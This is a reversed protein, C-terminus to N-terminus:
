GCDMKEEILNRRLVKNFDIRSMEPVAREDGQIRRNDSWINPVHAVKLWEKGKKRELEKELMPCKRIRLFRLSTLFGEEPMYKLKPCDNILLQVLSPLNQFGEKELSKLNKFSNIQLSTLTTPLLLKGPFSEVDESERGSIQLWFLTPLIQLGWVMWNAILRKCSRIDIKVLASPLGGEPFLEIKPCDKIEMISLSPLFQDMKDPMSRLSECNELSFTELKPARLGGKPFSVFSPCERIKIYSIVSYGEHQELSQLNRCGKILINDLNPFLGLPFSMLSDCCDMLCLLRLSSYPSHMPFELKMCDNIRLSKLKSLLGDRPLSALSFCKGIQLRQLCSNFGKIADHEHQELSVLSELNDNGNIRIRTLVPFSDILLSGELHQCDIVDLEALSPLHVPLRGRLKPCNKIYLKELPYFTEIENKTSLHFWSEWNSMNELALIKLRGFPKMLSSNGYFETDVTVVGDFGDIYLENLFHLQGLPPLSGCYNCNRLEMHSINSLSHLKAIWDPFGKGCYYNITLSKLNEHPQLNELVGRQSECIGFKNTPNWQLVLEELYDKDKLGADLADEASRVNQLEWISLKGRLNILKGLEGICSGNHKSIIFKTLTQLYKLKGMQTPMKKLAQTNDIELHRLNKLKRMDRPLRDLCRCNSLKLTQLNCLNCVSNPLCKIKTSSFDLYRLHKMKSISDSLKIIKMGDLSLVRLCWARPMKIETGWSSGLKLFTRLHKAKYLDEEIKDFNDLSGGFYSLYRTMKMIEKSSDGELTFGFQGSVYKALDNVLDHMVFGLNNESSQQFLSRSVLTDFYRNGVEEMKETKSEHLFGEAMWLLVLEDKKFIHDKPFISCYAFCRKLYSPLYKYSLRLAPLITTEELSLDWLDSKLIKTWKEVDLESWLLDGIAKIALPLGKCKKVIQTGIEKIKPDANASGDRFAHKEFISWCDANSLEMLHHTAIAHMALAVSENRTTVLIKSGQFGYQLLQGLFERHIPKESWVDDLVLLFKRGILNKKLTDQLQEPDKTYCASLNAQEIISKKVKPVDFEESTCFWIKLDFYQKVRDDNYVLQALTTKGIGGMGFIAILCMENGGGHSPLLLDIVKKKDDDRGFTDSELVYSTSLREPNQKGGVGVQLGMDVKQKALDELKVLVKKIKPEIHHVFPNIFTSSIRNGVKGAASQFEADLECRLAETAIEDLIDEADYAVDKLEDIWKKVNPNTFQKDEADELVMNMPLLAIELKKLLADTSKRRCIFDVVRPSAMKHFVVGLIGSLFAVGVETM